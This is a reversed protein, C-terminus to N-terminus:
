FNSSGTRKLESMSMRLIKMAIIINFTDKLKENRKLFEEANGVGPTIVTSKKWVALNNYILLKLM